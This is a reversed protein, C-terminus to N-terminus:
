LPEDIRKNLNIDSYNMKHSSLALKQRICIYIEVIPSYDNDSSDEPPRHKNIQSKKIKPILM